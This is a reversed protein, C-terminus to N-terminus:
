HGCWQQRHRLGRCHQALGVWLVPARTVLSLAPRSSSRPRPSGSHMAVGLRGDLHGPTARCTKLLLTHILGGAAHASLAILKDNVPPVRPFTLPTRSWCGGPMWQTDESPPKERSGQLVDPNRDLGTCTATM